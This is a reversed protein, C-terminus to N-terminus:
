PRWHDLFRRVWPLRDVPVYQHFARKPLRKECLAASTVTGTTVLLPLWPREAGLRELLLLVSQVEGVSAAHIWALPGEPRARGAMGQREAFRAADEKGAALRRRLYLSILPGGLGTLFRYARPTM